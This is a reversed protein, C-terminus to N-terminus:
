IYKSVGSKMGVPMSVIPAGSVSPRHTKSALMGKYAGANGIKGGVMRNYEPVEVSPVNSGTATDVVMQRTLIGTYVASSGAQNVMIGANATIIVIEPTIAVDYPNTVNLTIQFNFQGISGSSLMAPLSLSQAPSLVLLSGTTPVIVGEGNGGSQTASGLFEPYSQSSGAEVSLRWLDFNSASSLLGSQNNLSIQVSNIPFWSDSDSSTLSSYPKRVVIIFKDPISNLQLNASTISGSAGASMSTTATTLYRPYSMYPVVSRSPILDTSQTSLFNMLMEVQGQFPNTSIPLGTTASTTGYSLTYTYGSNATRWLRSGTNLQAVLNLTNIGVLGGLNYQPNSFIFPSLFIPEILDYVLQVVIYNGATVIINPTATSVLVGLSTFQTVSCSKYPFAGRPVQDLDYSANEYAGLSNNNALVGDSYNLYSQDPLTPAGGNWRYLERSDNMRLLQPLIDSITESVNTNNLQSSITNMCMTLPFPALSDTVGLNFATDGVGAGTIKLSFSFDTARIAVERNVVISQSPVQINFVLSSSTASVAQFQQFTNNSAGQQVAFIQKDTIQSLKSDRVLCTTFDTM